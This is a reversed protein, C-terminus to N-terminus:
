QCSDLRFFDDFQVLFFAAITSITIATTFKWHEQPLMCISSGNGTSNTCNINAITCVEVALATGVYGFYVIVQGVFPILAIVSVLKKCSFGSPESMITVRITAMWTVKITIRIFRFSWGPSRSPSESSDSHGDLHGQHHGDSYGQHTFWSPKKICKLLEIQTM